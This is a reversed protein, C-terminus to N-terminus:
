KRKWWWENVIVRYKNNPATDYCVLTPLRKMEAQEYGTLKAVAMRDADYLRDWGELVLFSEPNTFCSVEDLHAVETRPKEFYAMASVGIALGFVLGMGGWSRRREKEIQELQELEKLLVREPTYKGLM